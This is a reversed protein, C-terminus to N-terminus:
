VLVFDIRTLVASPICDYYKNGFIWKIVGYRINEPVYGAQANVAREEAENLHM